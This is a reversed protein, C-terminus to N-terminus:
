VQFELSGASVMLNGVIMVQQRSNLRNRDDADIEFVSEKITRDVDTLWARESYLRCRAAWSGHVRRPSAVASGLDEDDDPRSAFSADSDDEVLKARPYLLSMYGRWDYRIRSMTKPVMIDLWARDAIGLSSTRYTTIVRGVTVTGDPLCELLSVGARLLLEGETQSYQDAPDPAMIGPLVLSRLQRAPDNTMHFASLGHMTAAINWASSPVAKLSFTSLFPCNTLQGFTGAQGYTARKAVYGHVDLRTMAQYREIAWAAFAQMNTVDNWPFSVDTFWAGPLLDLAGQILPNGAGNAMAVVAITLGAPIVQAAVDVRIDIDNGVEGGNRATCTVVAAASTATVVNATDATIAAALKTALQTPTDAPLATIRVQRSGVRFRLVVPQPVNGAFTFTGTAKVAGGADALAMVFLPQTKNAKRFAAVMDAGISGLGFLAIGEEPRTIEAIQGAALTGTGLKQSIILNKVPWPLVGVKRYNAKVELFTGPALWDGAIEDFTITM